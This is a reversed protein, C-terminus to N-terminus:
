GEKSFLANYIDSDDDTAEDVGGTYGLPALPVTGKALSALVDGAGPDAALLANWHERRAPPIRGEAIASNVVAARDEAIQRERADRGMQAAAQLDNYQAEDLLVTGEPVRNEVPATAPQESLAEDLAALLDDENLDADAPIGLRSRLGQILDPM